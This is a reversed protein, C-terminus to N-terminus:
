CVANSVQKASSDAATKEDEDGGEKVKDAPETPIPVEEPAEEPAVEETKAADKDSSATEEVDGGGDPESITQDEEVTQGGATADEGDRHM